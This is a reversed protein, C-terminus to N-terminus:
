PTTTPPIWKLQLEEIKQTNLNLDQEFLYVILSIRESKSFSHKLVRYMDAPTWKVSDSINPGANAQINPFTAIIRDIDVTSPLINDINVTTEDENQVIGDSLSNILEQVAPDLMPEIADYFATEIDKLAQVIEEKKSIIAQKRDEKATSISNTKELIYATIEEKKKLLAETLVIFIINKIKSEIEGKLIFPLNEEIRNLLNLKIDDLAKNINNLHQEMAPIDPCYAMLDFSFHNEPMEINILYDETVITPPDTRYQSFDLAMADPSPILLLSELNQRVFTTNVARQQTAATNIENEILVISTTKNTELNDNYLDIENCAAIMANQMADISSNCFSALSNIDGTLLTFKNNVVTIKNQIATLLDNQFAALSENIANKAETLRTKTNEVMDQLATLSDPYFLNVIDSTTDFLFTSVRNVVGQVIDEIRDTFPIKNIVLEVFDNSATLLSDIGSEVLAILDNMMEFAKMLLETLFESVKFINQLIEQNKQKIFATIDDKFRNIAESTRYRLLWLIMNSIILGIVFRFIWKWVPKLLNGIAALASYM